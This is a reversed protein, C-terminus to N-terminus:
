QDSTSDGAQSGRCAQLLMLPEKIRCAVGSSILRQIVKKDNIVARQKYFARAARENNLSVVDRSELHFSGIAEVIEIQNYWRDPFPGLTKYKRWFNGFGCCPYHLIVADNSIVPETRRTTSGSRGLGRTRYIFRHGGDPELSKTIRAASKGNAYFLFLHEPLQPVREIVTRQRANLSVEPLLAFNKKFLTAQRFYDSIDMAEPIAEYNPYIVNELKRDRLSQFHDPATGHFPYFLEDCDIHVVWDLKQKLALQIAIEVNLSQRVKFESELFQYFGPNTSAIKTKKWKSQLRADTKIISVNSFSRATEISPDIPDDFFLFFHSFGLATHYRLFSDFSPGPQKLTTVIAAKQTM